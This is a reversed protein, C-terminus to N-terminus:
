GSGRARRRAARRAVRRGVERWSALAPAPDSWRFTSFRQRRALSRAWEVTTIEGALRYSLLAAVDEVPNWLRVGERFGVVPAVPQGAARRYAIVALDTGSLRVIENSATFRHNCEILKFAGDTADRKFEIAALGRLGAGQAFRLGLEAVDPVWETVQYTILGFHVPYQRLKRKTFHALPAGREDLYTYYSVFQDDGGPVIETALMEVGTPALAALERRLAAENAVVFAKRTSHRALVHARRPKLACPFTLEAVAAEVDRPERLARTRPAPVDLARALAYTRLKDLMTLVIGDDAEVPLYGWDRLLPRHRAILELGDDHCPLLVAGRPGRELWALWEAQTDAGETRTFTACHRSSAVPAFGTSVVHVAAGLLALSRAVSLAAGRGGLLVVPPTAAMQRRPRVTASAGAVTPPSPLDTATV